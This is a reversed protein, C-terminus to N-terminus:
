RIGLLELEIPNVKRVRAYIKVASTTLITNVMSDMYKSYFLDGIKRTDNYIGIKYNASFEADTLVPHQIKWKGPKNTYNFVIIKGVFRSLDDKKIDVTAPVWSYGTLTKGMADLGKMIGELYKKDRFPVTMMDIFSEAKEDHIIWQVGYSMTIFLQQEKPAIMIVIANNIGPTGLKLTNAREVTFAEPTKNELSKAIYCCVSVGTSHKIEGLKKEVSTSQSLSLLSYEDILLKQSYLTFSNGTVILFLLILTRM